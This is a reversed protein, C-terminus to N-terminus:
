YVSPVVRPAHKEPQGELAKLITEAKDIYNIMEELTQAAGQSQLLLEGKARRNLEDTLRLSEKLWTILNPAIRPDAKLTAMARLVSQSPEMLM